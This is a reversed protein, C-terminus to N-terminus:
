PAPRGHGGDGPDVGGGAALAGDLQRGLAAVSAEAGPRGEALARARALLQRCYREEDTDGEARLRWADLQGPSRGADLGRWTAAAQLLPLRGALADEAARDKAARRRDSDRLSEEARAGVEEGRALTDLAAPLDGFLRALLLAVALAALTLCVAGTL